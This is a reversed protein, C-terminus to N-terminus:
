AKAAEKAAVEAKAADLMEQPIQGGRLLALMAKLDEKNKKNRENQAAIREEDSAYKRTRTRQTFSEPIAYGIHAALLDRAFASAVKQESEGAKMLALKLGAPISIGLMVKENPDLKELDVRERTQKSDEDDEDDSPNETQESATAETVEETAIAMETDKKRAM